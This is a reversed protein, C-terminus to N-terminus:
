FPGLCIFYSFEDHTIPGEVDRADAYGIAARFQAVTRIGRAALKAQKEEIPVMPLPLDGPPAPMPLDQVHHLMRLLNPLAYGTGYGFILGRSGPHLNRVLTEYDAWTRTTRAFYDVLLASAEGLSCESWSKQRYKACYRTKQGQGSHEWRVPAKDLLSACEPGLVWGPTRPGRTLVELFAKERLTHALVMYEMLARQSLEPDQMQCEKFADRLMILDKAQSM